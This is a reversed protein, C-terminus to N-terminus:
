HPALRNAETKRPRGRGRSAASPLGDIYRAVADIHFLTKDGSKRHAVPFTRRSLRTRITGPALGCANATEDVTLLVRGPYLKMLIELTNM